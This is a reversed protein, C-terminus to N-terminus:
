WADSRALAELLRRPQEVIRRAACGIRHSLFVFVNRGCAREHRLGSSCMSLIVVQAEQGQFKDVSGVQANSGLHKKLLRVQMNYPAVILIDNLTLTRQTSLEADWYDCGLLNGIIKEIMEVEEQCGQSNDEHEVPVFVVGAKKSIMECESEVRQSATRPHSQLRGEYFAESIFKCIGPHLRWTRDLLIGMHPPITQYGALLYNLASEGSEGPHTGQVPQALQMQDGVLVLNDTSLGVAVTNALSYQGAEDVFLYDFKGQLEHRSFFWATGGIVVPGNDVIEDVVTNPEFFEIEDNADQEEDEALGAKVVRCKVGAKKMANQVANLVNLIAKHSNATVGVQKGSLLLELIAAAATYTKGSGPPGQICLVTNQMRRIADVTGLTLDSGDPIIPGAGHGKLRPPLRRILDDVAQSLIKGQSWAEVYRFVAEAITAASVYENPILNLQEPPQNQKPGLKVEIRGNVADFSEIIPKINLDHAFFCKSGQHLKTDQDPDFSYEYAWSRKVQRPPSKTRQLGGLCDFDDILEQESMKNRAFMRWFIPKAERWHYGVLGGLLTQLRAEEPDAVKGDNVQGLLKEALLSAANEDNNEKPKEEATQDKVLTPSQFSIGNSKQLEWLWEALKLTSVCDEENYNRIERLLESENWDGSQGSEIWEHYAVVSGGATVVEAKRADMYLREIDKLSYSPTGVVLGQRVVKYLDVFVQNRLLEDVEFERTAHKSMLHQMAATEYPAYHFVHMSKDAKWRGYLWDIFQQFSRREEQHNHSWWDHFVPQGNENCVAGLLYELGDEAYPYGEIDFFVDNASPPPLSALGLRQDDATALQIEYLPPKQKNKSGSQLRAQIKLRDFALPALRPVNKIKTMALENMKSIGAAELKKIQGRTINAVQSLHDTSSLYAKAFTSWRGHNTSQGPHPFSEPSFQDHFAVFRRRLSRFYYLFKQLSLAEPEGNGLVASFKNPLREQIPVLMESYACLQVVFYPKFSRALKTDWAEYHYDGLRSKGDKRILFDAFGAFGEHSLHAQYIVDVGKKMAELTAAIGKDDTKTNIVEVRRGENQLKLLYAQEHEMGKSFILQLEDDKEDPACSFGNLDTAPPFSSTKANGYNSYQSEIHWRDMWSAFDGDLYKVLDSPSFILRESEYRM